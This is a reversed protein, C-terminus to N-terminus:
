SKVFIDNKALRCNNLFSDGVTVHDIESRNTTKKKTVTTYTYLTKISRNETCSFNGYWNLDHPTYTYLTLFTHTKNVINGFIDM